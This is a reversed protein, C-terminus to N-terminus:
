CLFLRIRACSPASATFDACHRAARNQELGLHAIALPLLECPLSFFFGFFPALGAGAFGAGGGFFHDGSWGWM